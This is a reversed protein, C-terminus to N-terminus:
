PTDERAIADPDPFDPGDRLLGELDQTRLRRDADLAYRALPDAPGDRGLINRGLSDSLDQADAADLPGDYARARGYFAEALTKMRKPVSTDGVGMERLAADLDRFLADALDRAVEDAPPPLVRLARLALMVHLSLSEFRGELTDPVGLKLYLGPARSASAVRAYLAAITERRPDRGFLRLIM